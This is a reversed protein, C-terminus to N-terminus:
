NKRRRFVKTTIAHGVLEWEDGMEQIVKDVGLVHTDHFILNGDDELLPSWAEFDKKCYEYSHDGDIFILKFKKDKLKKGWEDIFGKCMTIRDSIGLDNFTKKAVQEQGKYGPIGASAADEYLDVTYVMGELSFEKLGTAFLSATAGQFCGLNAYLGGGVIPIRSYMLTAETRNLQKRSFYNDICKPIPPLKSLNFDFNMKDKDTHQLSM